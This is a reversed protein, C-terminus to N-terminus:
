GEFEGGEIQCLVSVMPDGKKTVKQFGEKDTDFVRKIILNYEGMPAVLNGGGVDVGKSSYSGRM